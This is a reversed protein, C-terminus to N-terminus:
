GKPIFPDDVAEGMGRLSMVAWKRAKFNDRFSATLENVRREDGRATAEEKALRLTRYESKIGEYRSKIYVKRVGAEPAESSAEMYANIAGEEVEDPRSM